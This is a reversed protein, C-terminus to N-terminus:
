VPASPNVDNLEQLCNWLPLFLQRQTLLMQQQHVKVTQRIAIAAIIASTGSFLAGVATAIAAVIAWPDM